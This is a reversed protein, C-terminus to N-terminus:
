RSILPLVVRYQNVFVTISMIGIAGQSDLASLVLTHQGNPLVAQVSRGIGLPTVGDLTWLFKSDPLATGEDIDSADGNLIVQTGGPIFGMDLPSQIYVEPPHNGVSYVFPANVTVNNLGDSIILRLKGM